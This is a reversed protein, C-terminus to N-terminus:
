LVGNIMNCGCIMLELSYVPSKIFYINFISIKHNNEKYCAVRHVECVTLLLIVNWTSLFLACAALCGQYQWVRLCIRINWNEYFSIVRVMFLVSGHKLNDFRIKKLPVLKGNDLDCAM